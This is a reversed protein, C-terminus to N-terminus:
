DIPLFSKTDQFRRCRRYGACPTRRKEQHPFCCASSAESAKMRFFARWNLAAERAFCKFGEALAAQTVQRWHTDDQGVAVLLTSGCGHRQEGEAALAAAIEAQVRSDEARLIHTGKLPTQANPHCLLQALWQAQASAGDSLKPLPPLAGSALREQVASLADEPLGLAVLRDRDQSQM